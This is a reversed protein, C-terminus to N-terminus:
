TALTLTNLWGMYSLSKETVSENLVSKVAYISLDNKTRTWQRDGQKKIQGTHVLVLVMVQRYQGLGRQCRCGSIVYHMGETKM